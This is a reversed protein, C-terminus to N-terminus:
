VGEDLYAGVYAGVVGVTASVLALIRVATRRAGHAHGSRACLLIRAGRYAVLTFFVARYCYAALPLPAHFQFYKCPVSRPLSLRLCSSFTSRQLSRPLHLLFFSLSRHPQSCMPDSPGHSMVTGCRPSASTSLGGLLDEGDGHSNRSNM